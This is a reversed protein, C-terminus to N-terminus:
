FKQPMQERPVFPRKECEFPWSPASNQFFQYIGTRRDVTHKFAMTKGFLIQEQDFKVFEMGLLRGDEKYPSGDRFTETIGPSSRNQLKVEKLTLDIDLLITNSVLRTRPDKVDCKLHIEEGWVNVVTLVLMMVAFPILRVGIVFNHFPFFTM